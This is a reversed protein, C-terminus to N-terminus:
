VIAPEEAPMSPAPEQEWFPRFVGCVVGLAAYDDDPGVEIPREAANAPELIIQQGNVRLTKITADEGLRAAIIDGDKPTAVPTVMVFDGDLIGRDVMSDGKVKLFFADDSPLFRRDVTIYGKRDEPMLRPEGAHIKGYYPIPQTAGAAAFGLLRVGRSRSEDREIYGKNELSHLLDSVTKTSKIRFKRAIERISPQYTNEALFDIMYHYVRRELQNLPEAM